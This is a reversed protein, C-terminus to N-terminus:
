RKIQDADGYMEHTYDQEIEIFSIMQSIAQAIGGKDSTYYKSPYDDFDFEVYISEHSIICKLEPWYRWKLFVLDNKQLTYDPKYGYEEMGSFVARVVEEM